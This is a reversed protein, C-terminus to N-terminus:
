HKLAWNVYPTNLQPPFALESLSLKHLYEKFIEKELHTAMGSRALLRATKAYPASAFHMHSLPLLAQQIHKSLMAPKGLLKEMSAVELYVGDQGDVSVWSSFGMLQKALKNMAAEMAQQLNHEHLSVIQCAPSLAQVSSLKMGVQIGADFAQPSADLVCHHKQDVLVIASEEYHKLYWSQLFLHPCYIYLWM